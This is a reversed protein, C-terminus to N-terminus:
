TSSKSGVSDGSARKVTLTLIDNKL